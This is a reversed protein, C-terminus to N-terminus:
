FHRRRVRRNEESYSRRPTQTLGAWREPFGPEAGPDQVVEQEQLGQSSKGAAESPV